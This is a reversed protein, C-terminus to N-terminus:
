QEATTHRIFCFVFFFVANIDDNIFIDVYMKYKGVKSARDIIVITQLIHFKREM